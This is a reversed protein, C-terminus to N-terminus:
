FYSTIASFDNSMYGHINMYLFSSQWSYWLPTEHNLMQKFVSGKDIIIENRTVETWWYIIKMEEQTQPLLQTGWRESTYAFNYLKSKLLLIYTCICIPVFSICWNWTAANQQQHEARWVMSEGPPFINKFTHMPTSADLSVSIVHLPHISQFIVQVLCSHQIFIANLM